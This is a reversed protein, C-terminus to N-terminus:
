VKEGLYTEILKRLEPQYQGSFEKWRTHTVYIKWNHLLGAIALCGYSNHFTNISTTQLDLYLNCEANVLWKFVPLLKDLEKMSGEQVFGAYLKAAAFLKQYSTCELVDNFSTRLIQVWLALLAPNAFIKEAFLCAYINQDLKVVETKNIGFEKELSNLIPLFKLQATHYEPVSVLLILNNFGKFEPFKGPNTTLGYIRIPKQIIWSAIVDHLYDKCYVWPMLPITGTKTIYALSFEIGLPFTNQVLGVDRKPLEVLKPIM